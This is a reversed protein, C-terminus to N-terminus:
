VVMVVVELLAISANNGLTTEKLSTARLLEEIGVEDSSHLHFSGSTKLIGIIIVTYILDKM